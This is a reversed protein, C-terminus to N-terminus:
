RFKRYDIESPSLRLEAHQNWLFPFLFDRDQTSTSCLVQNTSERQAAPAFFHVFFTSHM